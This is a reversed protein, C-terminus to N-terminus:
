DSVSTHQGASAEPFSLLGLQDLKRYVARIATASVGASDDRMYSALLVVDSRDDDPLRAKITALPRAVIKKDDESVGLTYVIQAKDMNMVEVKPHPLNEINTHQELWKVIDDLGSTGICHWGSFRVGDKFSIRADRSFIEYLSEGSYSDTCLWSEGFYGQHYHIKQLSPSSTTEKPGELKYKLSTDYWKDYSELTLKGVADWVAKLGDVDIPGHLTIQYLRMDESYVDLFSVCFFMGSVKSTGVVYGHLTDVLKKDGDCDDPVESQVRIALVSLDAEGTVKAGAKEAESVLASVDKDDLVKQDRPLLVFTNDIIALEHEPNKPLLMLYSPKLRYKSVRFFLLSDQVRIVEYSKEVAGVLEM